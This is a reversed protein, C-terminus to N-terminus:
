DDLDKVSTDIKLDLQKLGKGHDGFYQSPFPKDGYITAWVYKSFMLADKDIRDPRSFDLKETKPALRAQTKSKMDKKAPNMENLAINSELYTYNTFNPTDQFCETMLPSMAVTQNMPQVGFIQCITHLVSSQNYFTSVLADRKVYPGAVLCYSRHGDVHDTGTQPDDENIFVVMDKWFPSKSLADVVRGTALDNDAVYARPTPNATSHGNTHDNPMYIVMFEPLNGQKEYESLATIFADARVQDPINMQWGPFRLDSYKRLMDSTYVCQFEATNNKNAWSSYFDTWTKGKVLVPYDLEGFNRFSIGKRLLHDWIFGSAAYCLPDTGFDYACHVSAYDKERYPTTIGQVAWQHGDNSQIGNCYYNDLLVFQSALAHMNPTVMKPFEVLNPDCNGKGFDGFVQDFKKNEKIIYVVHKIVSPEGVRAPVPKPEVGSEAEAQARIIDILHFGKEAEQTYKELEAKNSPLTVKQLGGKLPVVNGIFLDDNKICLAGPFGGAAIFGYPGEKPKKPNILAIANNGANAAFLIKGNSSFELATTLSGYPLNPNPKTDITEIVKRKEIDIVSIGDGSADTVYLLKGDPSLVMSEPHIRTNIEAIVKKTKIDIVSVSGRFAISYGDVAVDSGASKETKDYKGPIPGGFNSVFATSEDHSIVVAYPCVGVPINRLVKETKLDVVAVQNAIALAVLALNSKNCLGIGLPNTFKKDISLDITKTQEFIGTKSLTGIYMNKQQGTYYITADDKSLALGYMSGGDNKDPFANQSMVKFNDADVVSLQADSKVVLFKKDQALVLNFIREKKGLEISVGEPKVLYGFSSLTNGVLMKKWTSDIQTPELVASGKQLSADKVPAKNDKHRNASNFWQNNKDEQSFVETKVGISLLLIALISFVSISRM